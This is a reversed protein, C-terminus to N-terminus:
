ETAYVATGGFHCGDPKRAQDTFYSVTVQAGDPRSYNLQGSVKYPTGLFDWAGYSSDFDRLTFIYPYTTKGEDQLFSSTATADEIDSRATLSLADFPPDGVRSCAATITLGGIELVVERSSPGTTEYSM